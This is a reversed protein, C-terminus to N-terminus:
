VCTTWPLPSGKKEGGGPSLAAGAHCKRVLVLWFVPMLFCTGGGSCVCVGGLGRSFVCM